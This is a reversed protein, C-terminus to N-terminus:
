HNVLITVFIGIFTCWIVGKSITASNCYDSNCISCSLVSYNDENQEILNKVDDCTIKITRSYLACDRFTQTINGDAM